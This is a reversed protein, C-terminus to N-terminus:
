VPRRPAPPPERNQRWRRLVSNVEAGYIFLLASIYFFFLTVIIGGLSGYTISFSPVSRLYFTYLEHILVWLGWAVLAGPVVEFRRLRVNPLVSYLAMLLLLLLGIGTLYRLPAYYEAHLPQELFWSAADLALPVVVLLVTVVIAVVAALITLLISELRTRWFAPPDAVDYALNLAHRLTEIGSSSGWLTIVGSITMLGAHPANRVEDVAPKLGSAVDPPLLVFALEIAQAAAETQGLSGALALLFILFPFLAFLGMYAIHGALVWANDKEFHHYALFLVRRARRLPGDGRRPPQPGAEELRRQERRLRREALPARRPWITWVRM